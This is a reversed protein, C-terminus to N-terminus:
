ISKRVGKTCSELREHVKELIIVDGKNHKLIEKLSPEHGLGAKGWLEFDLPTKGVIDFFECIAALRYSHMRLKAKAIGYLDTHTMEGYSPFKIGYKIARTRVMPVDFHYDGGYYTYIHDYKSLAQCLSKLIRVDGKYNIIDERKAVDYEIEKVGKEKICWTLLRGFPANLGTSEIDLYGVRKPGSKRSRIKLDELKNKIAEYSRQLGRNTLENYIESVSLKSGKYRYLMDLENEEWNGKNALKNEGKTLSVILGQILTM